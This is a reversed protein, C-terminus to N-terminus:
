DSVQHAHHSGIQEAGQQGHVKPGGELGAIPHCSIMENGYSIEKVTKSSRCGLESEAIACYHVDVGCLLSFDALDTQRHLCALYKIFKEGNHQKSFFM